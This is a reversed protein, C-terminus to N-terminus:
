NTVEVSYFRVTGSSINTDTWSAVAGDAVIGESLDTWYGDDVTESYVVRYTKGTVTPWSLTIGNADAKTISSVKLVSQANNPDTGAVAESTDSVGDIDTDTAGVTSQKRIRRADSINVTANGPSGVTYSANAALTLIVTETSENLTDPKPTVTVAVSTAGAPITASSGLTNYDTGNSATGGLTYNVALASATSGTRTFTFVGVNPGAEGASADTAVVTVTPMAPPPTSDNDAINVTAGNPSGVTYAANAALTLAVTEAGEVMTDDAPTVAVTISGAGAPITVSTGISVYDAGNVASGGLAFNVTLPLTTAGTRTV